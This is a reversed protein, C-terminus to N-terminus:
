RPNAFECWFKKDLRPRFFLFFQNLTELSRVELRTRWFLNSLREFMAGCCHRRRRNSCAGGAICAVCGRRVQQGLGLVDDAIGVVVLWGGVNGSM